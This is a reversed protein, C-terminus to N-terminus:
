SRVSRSIRASAMESPFLVSPDVAFKRLPEPGVIGRRGGIECSQSVLFGGMTVPQEIGIPRAEALV